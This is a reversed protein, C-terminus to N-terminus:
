NMRFIHYYEDNYIQEDDNGDYPSLSGYGDSIRVDDAYREYDFYQRINDSMTMYDDVCQRIYEEWVEDIIDDNIVSYEENGVDYSRDNEYHNYSAETIDCLPVDLYLSLALIEDEFETGCEEACSSCLTLEGDEDVFCDDGHLIDEGCYVCKVDYDSDIGEFIM